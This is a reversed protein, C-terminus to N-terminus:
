SETDGEEAGEGQTGKRRGPIRLGLLEVAVSFLHPLLALSQGKVTLYKSETFIKTEVVLSQFGLWPYVARDSPDGEEVSNRSQGETSM